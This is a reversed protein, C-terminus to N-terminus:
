GEETMPERNLRVRENVSYWTNAVNQCLQWPSGLYHTPGASALHKISGRANDTVNVRKDDRRLLM